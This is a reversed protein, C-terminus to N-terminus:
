RKISSFDDTKSLNFNKYLNKAEILSIKKSAVMGVIIRKHLEKSDIQGDSNLTNMSYDIYSLGGQMLLDNRIKLMEIQANLFEMNSYINNREREDTDKLNIMAIQDYKSRLKSITSLVSLAISNIYTLVSNILNELEESKLNSNNDLWKQIGNELFIQKKFALDIMETASKLMEDIQMQM